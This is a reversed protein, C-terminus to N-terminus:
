EGTGPQRKKVPANFIRETTASTAARKAAEEDGDVLAKAFDFVHGLVGPPLKTLLGAIRAVAEPLAGLSM